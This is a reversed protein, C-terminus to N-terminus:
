DVRWGDELLETFSGYEIKDGRKGGLFAIFDVLHVTPIGAEVTGLDHLLLHGKDRMVPCVPRVWKEPRMLYDLHNM